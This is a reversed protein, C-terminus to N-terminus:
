GSRVRHGGPPQNIPHQNNHQTHIFPTMGDHFLLPPSKGRPLVEIPLTCQNTARVGCDDLALESRPVLAAINFNHLPIAIRDDGDPVISVATICDATPHWACLVSVIMIVDLTIVIITPASTLM